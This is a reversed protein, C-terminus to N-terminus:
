LNFEFRIDCINQIWWTGSADASKTVGGMEKELSTLGSLIALSYFSYFFIVFYFYFLTWMITM